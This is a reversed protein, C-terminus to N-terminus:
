VGGVLVELFCDGYGGFEFLGIEFFSCWSCVFYVRCDGDEIVLLM